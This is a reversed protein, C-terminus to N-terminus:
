PPLVHHLNCEELCLFLAIYLVAGFMFFCSVHMSKGALVSIAHMISHPAHRNYSPQHYPLHLKAVDHTGSRRSAPKMGGYSIQDVSRNVSGDARRAETVVVAM